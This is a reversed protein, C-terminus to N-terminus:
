WQGQAGKMRDRGVNHQQAMAAHHIVMNPDLANLILSRCREYDAIDGSQEPRSALRFIRGLALNITQADTM